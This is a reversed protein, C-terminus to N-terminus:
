FWYMLSARCLVSASGQRSIKTFCQPTYARHYIKRNQICLHNTGHIINVHLHM